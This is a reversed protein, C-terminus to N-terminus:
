KGGGASLSLRGREPFDPSNALQAIELAGIDIVGADLTTPDPEILRQFVQPRVADVGTVAQAAAVIRSLYVPAGFSFNDPHFVGLTGDPQVNASLMRAVAHLVDARFYDPKVCVHLAVDLAVTKPTRVDLDYGAM